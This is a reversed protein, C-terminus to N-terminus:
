ECSAMTTPCVGRDQETLDQHWFDMAYQSNHKKKDKTRSWALVDDITPVKMQRGDRTTIERTRHQPPVTKMPFFSSSGSGCDNVSAEERRLKVIRDPFKQAIMRIESKRSMICPLCGVRLAGMGYLPNLPIGYRKSLLFVDEIKWHLLPRWERIGFYSELPSGWESLKAREASEEARVGSVAIVEYGANQLNDIYRKTPKLKLEQTCFRAKTSPFRRKKRALDYFGLPPDIWTIECWEHVRRALLRVHEYTEDAENDVDCFTVRINYPSIGSEHLMWLMVAQSDKGGSVGVHYLTTV